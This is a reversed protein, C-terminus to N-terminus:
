MVVLMWAWKMLFRFSFFAIFLFGANLAVRRVDVTKWSM